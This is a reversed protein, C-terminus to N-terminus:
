AARDTDSLFAALAKPQGVVSRGVSLPESLCPGHRSNSAERTVRRMCVHLQQSLDKALIRRNLSVFSAQWRSWPARPSSFAWEPGILKCAALSRPRHGHVGLAVRKPRSAGHLQTGPAAPKKRLKQAASRLAPRRLCGSGHPWDRSSRADCQGSSCAGCPM